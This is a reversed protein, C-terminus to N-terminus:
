AMAGKFNAIETIMPAQYRRGSPCGVQRTIRAGTTFNRFATRKRGARAWHSIKSCHEFIFRPFTMKTVVRLGM